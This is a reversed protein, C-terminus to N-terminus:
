WIPLLFDLWVCLITMLCPLTSIPKQSIIDSLYHLLIIMEISFTNEFLMKPLELTELNVDNRNLATLESIRLGTSYVCKAIAYDRKWQITERPITAFFKEIEENTLFTVERDIVRM